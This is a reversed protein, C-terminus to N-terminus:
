FTIEVRRDIPNSIIDGATPLSPAVGHREEIQVAPIGLRVLEAKVVAIRDASGTLKVIHRSGAERAAMQVTKAASGSLVESGKDFFVVYDGRPNYAYALQTPQAGAATAFGTIVVLLIATGSIKTMTVETRM